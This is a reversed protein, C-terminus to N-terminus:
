LQWFRRIQSFIVSFVRSPLSKQTTAGFNLAHWIPNTLSLLVGLLAIFAAVVFLCPVIM